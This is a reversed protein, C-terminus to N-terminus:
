IKRGLMIEDTLFDEVYVESITNSINKEDETLAVTVYDKTHGLWYSCGDIKRREEWLIEANRGIYQRRFDASQRRELEFLENSRISKLKETLQGSM